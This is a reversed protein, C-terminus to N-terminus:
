INPYLYFIKNNHPYYIYVFCPLQKKTINNIEWIIKLRRIFLFELAMREAVDHPLNSDYLYIGFREDFLYEEEKSM